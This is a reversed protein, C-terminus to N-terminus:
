FGFNKFFYKQWTKTIENLFRGIYEEGFRLIEISDQRRKRVKMKSFFKEGIKIPYTSKTVIISKQCLLSSYRYLIQEICIYPHKDPLNQRM